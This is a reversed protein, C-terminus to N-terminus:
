TLKSAAMVMFNLIMRSFQGTGLNWLGVFMDCVSTSIQKREHSDPAVQKRMSVLLSHTAHSFSRYAAGDTVSGIAGVASESAEGM